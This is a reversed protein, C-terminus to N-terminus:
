IRRIRTIIMEIQWQTATIAITTTTVRNTPQNTPLHEQQQYMQTAAHNNNNKKCRSVPKLRKFSFFFYVNEKEERKAYM